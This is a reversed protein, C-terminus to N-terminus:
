EGPPETAPEERFRDRYYDKLWRRAVRNRDTHWRSLDWLLVGWDPAIQASALLRIVGPLHRQMGPVGQRVLLHLRREVTDVRDSSGGLGALTAGLNPRWPEASEGTDGAPIEDEGDVAPSKRMKRPQAAILAAVTYHAWEDPGLSETWRAVYRHMTVAQDPTRRLGRRLASGAGKDRVCLDTIWEVYRDAQVRSVGRYAKTAAPTM